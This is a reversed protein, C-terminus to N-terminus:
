VCRPTTLRVVDGHPTDLYAREWDDRLRDVEPAPAAGDEALIAELTALWATFYDDGGDLDKDLGHQALVDSFRAVWEPWSFRGIENLSITLAFVQAHWPQQFVPEPPSAPLCASM